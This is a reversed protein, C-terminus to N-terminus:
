PCAARVAAVAAEHLRAVVADADVSAPLLATFLRSLWQQAKRAVLLWQSQCSSFHVELQALRVLTWWVADHDSGGSVSLGVAFCSSVDLRRTCCIHM